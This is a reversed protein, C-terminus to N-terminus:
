EDNTIRFNKHSAGYFAIALADAADDPKPIEKLKLLRKMMTQVQVKQARGYGCIAQKVQLPTPELIPIDNIAGALIIAGRAEAVGFVTKQNKFFFLAEVAMLDPKRDKIVGCIREFIQKLRKSKDKEKLDLCGFGITKIESGTKELVGFGIRHTGPDIGLIRTM